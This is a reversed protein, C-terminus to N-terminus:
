LRARAGDRDDASTTRRCGSAASRCRQLLPLVAGGGGGALLVAVAGVGAGSDHAFPSKSLSLQVRFPAISDRDQVAPPTVTSHLHVRVICRGCTPTSATSASSCSTAATGTARLCTRDVFRSSALALVAPRM